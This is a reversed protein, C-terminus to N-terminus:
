LVCFHDKAHVQVGGVHLDLVTHRSEFERLLDSLRDLLSQRFKAPPGIDVDLRGKASIHLVNFIFKVNELLLEKSQILRIPDVLVSANSIIM